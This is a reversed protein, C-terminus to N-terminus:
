VSRLGAGVTVGFRGEAEVGNLEGVRGNLGGHFGADNPARWPARTDGTTDYQKGVKADQFSPNPLVQM